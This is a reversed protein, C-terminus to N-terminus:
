IFLQDLGSRSRYPPRSLYGLERYRAQADAVAQEGGPLHISTYVTPQIGRAFLRQVIGASLAWLLVVAGVGSAPCIARDFGPVTLMADGYPAHNDLVIDVVDQLRSGSAHEAPLRGSHAPATVGITGVGRDRAARALDILGPSTGSVSGIILVDGGQLAGADPKDFAVPMRDFALLGGTRWVLEQSVLHGTDHILIRHGAAIADACRDAAAALAGAEDAELATLQDRLKAFYGSIASM